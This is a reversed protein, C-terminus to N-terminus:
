DRCQLWRTLRPNDILLAAIGNSVNHVQEESLGLARDDNIVHLAEHILTDVQQGHLPNLDRAIRLEGTEYDWNGAAHSDDGVPIRQPRTVPYTAPGIKLRRPIPM